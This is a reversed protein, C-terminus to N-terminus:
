FNSYPLLQEQEKYKQNLGIKSDREANSGIFEDIEIQKRNEEQAILSSKKNYVNVGSKSFSNKGDSEITIM